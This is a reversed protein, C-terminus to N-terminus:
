VLLRGLTTRPGTGKPTFGNRRMWGLWTELEDKRFKEKKEPHWEELVGHIIRADDPTEGDILADNWVAYLTAVAEASKTSLDTLKDLINYFGDARAGLQSKLASRQDGAGSLITYEIQEGSEASQAAYLDADQLGAELRNLLQQDLPGAARREYEGRLESIGAHAEALYLAKQFKVRGFRQTNRHHYIIQAAIRTTFPAVCSLTASVSAVLKKNTVIERILTARKELLLDVSNQIKEITKRSRDLISDVIEAIQVQESMPPLFVPLSRFKEPEMRWQALRIGNSIQAYVEPMPLARLLHHMYRAHHQGIPKMVVYDPSTIGKHTSIGLSGQWSKMKNIVLDGPEVLQYKSLDDPTKNHNDDRSEKVIVGLERYVSLVTLDEYGQRKTAKFQVKLRSENWHAPIAGRWLADKSRKTKSKKIGQNVLTTIQTKEKEKLVKIQKKKKAILRDIRSTKGDLYDAIWEQQDKTPLDFDLSGWMDYNFSEISVGYGRFDEVRAMLAYKLFRRNVSPLTIRQVVNSYIAGEEPVHIYPTGNRTLLLDNTSTRKWDPFDPFDSELSAVNCTYLVEEGSGWYTKDIVEGANNAFVIWKLKQRIV